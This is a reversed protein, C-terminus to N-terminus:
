GCRHGTASRVSTREGDDVRKRDTPRSGVQRVPDPTPQPNPGIPQPEPGGEPVVIPPRGDDVTAAARSPTLAGLGAEQVKPVVPPSVYPQSPSQQASAPAWGSTGVALGLAFLAGISAGVRLSVRLVGM